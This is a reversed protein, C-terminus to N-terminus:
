TGYLDPASTPSFNRRRGTGAELNLYKRWECMAQEMNALSIPKGKFNESLYTKQNETLWRLKEQFQYQSGAEPWIAQIGGEAGPGCFVFDNETFPPRWFTKSYLLDSVIEFGLFGGVNPLRCLQGWALKLSVARRVFRSLEKIQSHAVLVMDCYAEKRTHGEVSRIRYASGTFSGEVAEVRSAFDQPNFNRWDPLGVKEISEIRNCCRYAITQFLLQTPDDENPQIVNRISCLTGRDYERYINTFKYAALIPDETWPPPQKLEFRRYRIEEREAVFRFFRFTMEDVTNNGAKAVAVDKGIDEDNPGTVPKEVDEKTPVPFPKVTDDNNPVAVPRAISGEQMLRFLHDRIRDWIRGDNPGFTEALEELSKGRTKRIAKGVAKPFGDIGYAGFVVPVYRRDSFARNASPVSILDLVTGPAIVQDPRGIDRFPPPQNCAREQFSAYELILASGDPGVGRANFVWLFRGAAPVWLRRAYGREDEEDSEYAIVIEPRVDTYVRRLEKLLRRRQQYYSREADWRIDRSVQTEQRM